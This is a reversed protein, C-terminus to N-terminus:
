AILDLKSLPDYSKRLEGSSEVLMVELTPRVHAELLHGGHATGDPKGVIVHAHVKPKDRDLAVDGILSLVEVQEHIPIRRYEKRNWDFYGLTVDQFGGIATFHSASLKKQEAFSALEGAVEDGTEFIVAYTAPNNDIIRSKM